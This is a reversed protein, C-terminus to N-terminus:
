IIHLPSHIASIDMLSSFIKLEYYFKTFNLVLHNVKNDFGVKCTLINKIIQKKINKCYMAYFVSRYIVSLM